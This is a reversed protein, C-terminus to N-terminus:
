AKRRKPPSLCARIRSVICEPGHREGDPTADQGCFICDPDLNNTTRILAGMAERLLVEKARTSRREQDLLRLVAQLDKVTVQVPAYQSRNELQCLVHEAVINDRIRLESKLDEKLDKLHEAKSM